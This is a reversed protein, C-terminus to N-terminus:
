YYKKNKLIIIFIILFYLVLDSDIYLYNYRIFILLLSLIFIFIYNYLLGTQLIRNLFNMIFNIIRVIGLPGFLEIIGRDILKLNLYSIKIFYGLIIKNYLIDIYWKNVFFRNLILFLNGFLRNLFLFSYFYYNLLYMLLIGFLSFLLPM